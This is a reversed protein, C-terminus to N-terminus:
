NEATVGADPIMGSQHCARLLNKKFSNIIGYVTSRILDGTCNCPNYVACNLPTGNVCHAAKQPARPKARISGQKKM